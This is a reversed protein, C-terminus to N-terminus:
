FQSSKPNPHKLTRISRSIPDLEIPDSKVTVTTPKDITNKTAVFLIRYGNTLNSINFRVSLDRHISLISDSKVEGSKWM